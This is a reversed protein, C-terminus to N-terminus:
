NVNAKYSAKIENIEAESKDTDIFEPDEPYIDDIYVFSSRRTFWAMRNSKIMYNQFYDESFARGGEEKLLLHAGTKSMIRVNKTFFKM